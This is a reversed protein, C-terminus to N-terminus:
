PMPSASPVVVPRSQVSSAAAQSSFCSGHAGDGIRLPQERATIFDAGSSCRQVIASHDSPGTHTGPDCVTRNLSAILLRM